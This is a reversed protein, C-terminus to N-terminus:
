STPRIARRDGRDVTEIAERLTEGTVLRGDTEVTFSIVCPM